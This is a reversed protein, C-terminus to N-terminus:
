SQYIQDTLLLTQEVLSDLGWTESYVHCRHDLSIRHQVWQKKENDDEEKAESIDGEDEYKNTTTKTTMTHNTPTTSSSRLCPFSAHQQQQPRNNHHDMGHQHDMSNYSTFSSGSLRKLTITTKDLLLKSQRKIISLPTSSTTATPTSTATLIPTSDITQKTCFEMENTIYILRTIIGTNATFHDLDFLPSPSNEQQQQVQESSSQTTSSSPSSSPTSNLVHNPTPTLILRSPLESPFPTVSQTTAAVILPSPKNKKKKKMKNKNATKIKKQKEMNNNNRQQEQDHQKSKLTLSIFSSSRTFTNNISKLLSIKQCMLKKDNSNVIMSLPSNTKQTIVIGEYEDDYNEDEDNNYHQMTPHPIFHTMMFPPPPPPVNPPPTSPPILTSLMLIASDYTQNHNTALQNVLLLPDVSTANDSKSISKQSHKYRYHKMSPPSLGNGEMGIKLHSGMREDEQSDRLTSLSSNIQLKANDDTMDTDGSSSKNSHIDESSKLRSLLYRMPLHHKQKGKRQKM